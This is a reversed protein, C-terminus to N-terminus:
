GTAQRQIKAKKREIAYLGDPDISGRLNDSRCLLYDTSVGLLDAIHVVTHAPLSRRKTFGREVSKRRSEDDKRRPFMTLALLKYNWGMDALLAEVRSVVAEYWEPEIAKAM